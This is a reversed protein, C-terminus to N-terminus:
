LYFINHAFLKHSFPWHFDIFLHILSQSRACTPHQKKTYAADLLFEGSEKSGDQDTDTAATPTAAAPTTATPTTSPTDVEIKRKKSEEETM